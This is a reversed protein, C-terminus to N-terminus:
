EDPGWDDTSDFDVREVTQKLLSMVRSRSVYVQAKTIGLQSAIDPVKKGEVATSWFAHWTNPEFRTQIKRAAWLFVQRERELDFEDPQVCKVVIGGIQSDLGSVPLRNSDRFFQVVLNRTVTALWARFSGKSPDPNWNEISRAVRTLVEQTVDDADAVQLGRKRALANIVPQYIEVFEQWARLDDANRLRLILSPRTQSAQDTPPMTLVNLIATTV